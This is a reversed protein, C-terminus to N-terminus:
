LRMAEFSYFYKKFRLFSIVFYITILLWFLKFLILAFSLLFTILVFQIYRDMHMNLTYLASHFFLILGVAFAVMAVMDSPLVHNNALLFIEPTVLLAYVLALSAYRGSLKIPLNRAFSLYNDEWGRMEYILVAHAVLGVLFGILPIRIEYHDIAIQFFGFLTFYSFLKTVVLMLRADNLIFGLYFFFMPKRFPFNVRSVFSVKFSAPNNLRQVSVWSMILCIFINFAFILLGIAPRGQKMAVLSTAMAYLWVPLHILLHAALLNVFQGGRPLATLAYLFANQPKALQANVFLGSKVAYVMWLLLVLMLFTSSQVIGTMLALHYSILQSGEVMGFMIFFIFLLLGMHQKYFPAVVVRNLVHRIPFM